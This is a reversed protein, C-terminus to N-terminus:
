LKSNKNFIYNVENKNETEDVNKIDVKKIDVSKFLETIKNVFNNDISKRYIKYVFLGTREEPVKMKLKHRWEFLISDLDQFVIPM